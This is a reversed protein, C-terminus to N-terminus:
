KGPYTSMTKFFCEFCLIIFAFIPPASLIMRTNIAATIAVKNKIFTIVPVKPMTNNTSAPTKTKVLKIENQGKYAGNPILVHLFFYNISLM